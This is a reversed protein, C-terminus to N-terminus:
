PKVMQISPPELDRMFWILMGLRIVLLAGFIVLQPIVVPNGDQIMFVAMGLIALTLFVAYSLLAGALMYGLPPKRWLTISTIGFAPLIWAMDLVHVANTPTGNDLISPPIKGAL